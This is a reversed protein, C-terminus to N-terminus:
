EQLSHLLCPFERAIEGRVTERHDPPKSPYRTKLAGHRGTQASGCLGAAGEFDM